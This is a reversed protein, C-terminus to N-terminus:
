TVALGFRLTIREPSLLTRIRRLQGVTAIPNYRGGTDLTDGFEDTGGWVTMQSSTWVPQTVTVRMPPTSLAPLQRVIPAQITDVM